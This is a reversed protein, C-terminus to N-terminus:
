LGLISGDFCWLFIQWKHFGEWFVRRFMLFPYFVSCVWFVFRSKIGIGRGSYLFVFSVDMWFLFFGSAIWDGVCVFFVRKIGSFLFFSM